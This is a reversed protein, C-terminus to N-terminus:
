NHDERIINIFYQFGMKDREVLDLTDLIEAKYYSGNIARRNIPKDAADLGEVAGVIITLIVVRQKLQNCRVCDFKM